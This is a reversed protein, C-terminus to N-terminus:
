FISINFFIGNLPNSKLRISYSIFFGRFQNKSAKKNELQYIPKAV